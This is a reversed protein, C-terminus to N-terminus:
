FQKFGIFIGLNIFKITKNWFPCYNNWLEQYFKIISYKIYTMFMFVILALFNCIHVCSHLNYWFLSLELDLWVCFIIIYIFTM